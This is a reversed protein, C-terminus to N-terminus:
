NHRILCDAKDSIYLNKNLFFSFLFQKSDNPLQFGCFLVCDSIDGDAAGGRNRDLGHRKGFCAVTFGREGLNQFQFFGATLDHAKGHRVFGARGTNGIEFFVGM